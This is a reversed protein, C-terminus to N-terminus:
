KVNKPTGDKDLYKDPDASLKPGCSKCCIYYERGRVVVKPSTKPDIKEGQVPCKTNTAAAPQAPTATLAATLLITLM